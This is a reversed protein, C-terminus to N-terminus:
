MNESACTQDCGQGAGLDEMAGVQRYPGCEKARCELGEPAQGSRVEGTEIGKRRHVLRQEGGHQAEGAGEECPRRKGADTGRNM